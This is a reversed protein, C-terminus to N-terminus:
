NAFLRAESPRLMAIESIPAFTSPLTGPPPRTIVESLEPHLDALVRQAELAGVIGLRVGATALSQAASHASTALALDLTLGMSQFVAGQAVPLHGHAHGDLTADRFRTAVPDGLRATAALFSQGAEASKVRLDEAWFLVDVEQDYILPDADFATTLVVRDFSAWRVLLEVAIWDPFSARTIQGERAAAEMGWSYVFAGSPFGSDALQLATLLSASM